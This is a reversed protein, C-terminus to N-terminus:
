SLINAVLRFMLAGSIIAVFPTLARLLVFLRLRLLSEKGNHTVWLPNSSIAKIDYRPASELSTLKQQLGNM